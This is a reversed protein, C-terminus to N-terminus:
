YYVYIQLSPFMRKLSPLQINEFISFVLHVFKLLQLINM